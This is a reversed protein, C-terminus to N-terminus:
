TTKPQRLSLDRHRKMFACHLNKRTSKGTETLGITHFNKRVRSLSFMSPTIGFMREEFKFINDKLEEEIDESFGRLGGHKKTVWLVLASVM